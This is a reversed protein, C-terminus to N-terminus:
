GGPQGHRSPPAPLVLLTDGSEARVNAAGAGAEMCGVKGGQRRAEMGGQRRAVKGGPWRAEQGGQWRAM